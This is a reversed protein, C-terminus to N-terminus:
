RWPLPARPPPPPRPRPPRLAWTVKFYAVVFVGLLLLLKLEVVNHSVGRAFPMDAAISIVKDLTGLLALLGAIIYITTNAYFSVSGMLNGILAADSIRNDRELLARAWRERYGHSIGILGRAAALGESFWGYGAWCALFWVLAIWDIPTVSALTQSM